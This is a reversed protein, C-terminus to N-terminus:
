IFRDRLTSVLLGLLVSCTVAAALAAAIRLRNKREQQPTLIRPIGGLLDTGLIKSVERENRVSEDTIEIVMALAFGGLIGGALGALDILLRNPGFPRRPVPASDLIVFREGKHRSEMENAMGASLKKDLLRNYHTRLTDYDRMLGAIQQEFIPERELKSSHFNIREELPAQMKTQEEVEQDLKAIQGELVPNRPAKRGRPAIEVAAPETGTETSAKAKLDNLQAQARRVDPHNPGYRSKLESLRTELKQMQSQIPSAAPGSSDADVDVVPASSMLLSQLYVKEQQARNVRDQSARLQNRLNTLQELHYQKSEPLDGINQTKIHQLDTEKQELQKKTDALQTELLDQTDSAQQERTKLNEDIVVAALQNAVTAATQASRSHFAIRFASLRQSGADVVEISIANQMTQVIQDEGRRGRLEPYLGLNDILRKLRSPSLVEQRITSLRDIVSSSITPTIYADPVKQPDVLIVTESRYTNPLRWAAVWTTTAIVTATFVIWWKRRWVADLVDRFSLEGFLETAESEREKSVSL